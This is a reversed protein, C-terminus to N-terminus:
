QGESEGGPTFTAKVRGGKEEGKEVITKGTELFLFISQGTVLNNDQWAKADGTLHVKREIEFYEMNNGTALWGDNQIEVNGEAYLKKLKRTDGKPLKKKDETSLYYVTMKDSRILLGGQKADVSGTFIVANEKKLSVMRDAEIHIPQSNEAPPAAEKEAATTLGPLLLLLSLIFPFISPHKPLKM